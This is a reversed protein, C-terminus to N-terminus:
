GRYIVTLGVTGAAATGPATNIKLGIGRDVDSRAIRFATALTPRVVGGAQATTVAALIEAGCTRANGSSDKLAGFDGNMIGVDLKIATGTDLDDTDLIADVFECGAPLPGMEIINNLTLDGTALAITARYSVTEGANAPTPAIEEGKAYETQLM